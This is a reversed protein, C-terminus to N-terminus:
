PAVTVAKSSNTIKEYTIENNQDATIRICGLHDKRRTHLSENCGHITFGFLPKTAKPYGLLYKPLTTIINKNYLLEFFM